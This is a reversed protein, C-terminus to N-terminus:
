KGGESLALERADQADFYKRFGIQKVMTLVNRIVYYVSFAANSTICIFALFLPMGWKMFGGMGAGQGSTQQAQQPNLANSYYSTVFSLVALILFGNPSKYLTLTTILLNVTGGPLVTANYYPLVVTQYINGDVFEKLATMGEATIVGNISAGLTSLTSSSAPLISTFPSDALWLNKVWLFPESIAEVSPLAAHIAAPDTLTGVAEQISMMVQALERNAVNRMAGFIIILIPFTLLLPLCSGLPNIKEKKYLEAQKKQLKEKDDAYKKQLAQLQPNVKEMRRMSKRSKYDFPLLILEILLTFLIITWGYSQLVSNIARLVGDFFDYM